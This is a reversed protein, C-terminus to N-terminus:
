SEQEILSRPAALAAKLRERLAQWEHEAAVTVGHEWTLVAAPKDDKDYIPIAHLHLHPSTMPLDRRATGLSAVYVRVAMLETELVRAVALSLEGAQSWAAPEVATFREVHVRLVIMVHGWRIALRPLMVVCHQSEHVVLASPDAVLACVLCPHHSLGAIAQARDIVRPM